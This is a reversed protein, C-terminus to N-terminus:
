SLSTVGQSARGDPQMRGTLNARDASIQGPHHSVPTGMDSIIVTFCTASRNVTDVDHM